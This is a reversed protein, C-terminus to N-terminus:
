CGVMKVLIHALTCKIYNMHTTNTVSAQQQQELKEVRKSVIEFQNQTMQFNKKATSHQAAAANFIILLTNYNTDSALTTIGEEVKAQLQQSEQRLNMLFHENNQKEKKLEKLSDIINEAQFLEM